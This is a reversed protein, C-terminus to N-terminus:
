RRKGWEGMAKLFRQFLHASDHPGPSAEPHFQVSFAGLDPWCMGELTGDNLNVHTVEARPGSGSLADVCFGHNQSTIEVRGTQLNKVPHNCGRHGFKLKYTKFGLALGLLQHGLCIGFIPKKGVMKRVEEVISPLGAPDGPGNSLVIGDPPGGFGLGSLVQEAPTYAPYVLVRCGAKSLMRLINYKVGYDMVAVRFDYRGDIAGEKWEFPERTTVFGVMDRGVLGPWEQARRRLRAVDRDLTSVIGKMAGQLRIHRTLARTDIGEVGLVGHSDLFEKLTRRSRWSSPSPSYERILIAEVQPRSSEMDEDNTGYNGIHPYTFTVIQGKYSPDTIVEQYGTLGTNFVVEGVAEGDGAFAEGALTFGDELVLLAERGM